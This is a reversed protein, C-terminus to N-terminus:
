LFDKGTLFFQIKSNVIITHTTLFFTSWIQRYPTPLKNTCFITGLDISTHIGLITYIYRPPNYM